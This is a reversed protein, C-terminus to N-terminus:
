SSGEPRSRPLSTGAACSRATSRAPSRSTRTGCATAVPDDDLATRYPHLRAWMLAVPVVISTGVVLVVLLSRVHRRVFRRSTRVPAARGPSNMTRGNEDPQAGWLRRDTEGTARRQGRSGLPPHTCADRASTTVTPPVRAELSLVVAGPRGVSAVEHAVQRHLESGARGVAGQGREGDEGREGSGAHHGMSQAAASASLCGPARPASAGPRRIATTQRAAVDPVSPHNTRGCVPRRGLDGHGDCNREGSARREDRREREDREDGGGAAGALRASRDPRSGAPRRRTARRSSSSGGAPRWRRRPGARADPAGAATRREREIPRREVAVDVHRVALERHLQQRRRM